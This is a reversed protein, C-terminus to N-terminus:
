SKTLAAVSDRWLSFGISGQVGLPYVESLSAHFSDGVEKISFFLYRDVKSGLPLKESHLDADKFSNCFSWPIYENM